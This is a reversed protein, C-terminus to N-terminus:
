SDACARYVYLLTRKLHAAFKGPIIEKRNSNYKKMTSSYINSDTSRDEKRVNEIM